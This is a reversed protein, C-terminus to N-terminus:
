DIRWESLLESATDYALTSFENPHKSSLEYLNGLFVTYPPATGYALMFGCDLPGSGIKVLPLIPWRPWEDPTQLFQLSKERLTDTMETEM